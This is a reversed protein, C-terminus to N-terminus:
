KRQKDGQFQGEYTNNVPASEHVIAQAIRAGKEIVIPRHVILFCGAKSTDFGADFQGSEVVAGCRVLSSRTKYVLAANNPMHIGEMLEVEYYGVPLIWRNKDTVADIYTPLHTKGEAPIVGIGNITKINSVRVDVGQQQVAEPTYNSIIQREIIQEGTLQM